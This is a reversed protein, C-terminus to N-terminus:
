VGKNGGHDASLKKADDANDEKDGQCRHDDLKYFLVGKPTQACFLGLLLVGHGSYWIGRIGKGPTLPIKISYAPLARPQEGKEM